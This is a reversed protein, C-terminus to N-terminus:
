SLRLTWSTRCSKIALFTTPFCTALRHRRSATTDPWTKNVSEARQSVFHCGYRGSLSIFLSGARALLTETLTRPQSLLWLFTSSDSSHVTLRVTESTSPKIFAEFLMYLCTHFSKLTLKLLSVFNNLLLASLEFGWTSHPSGTTLARVVFSRWLRQKKRCRM